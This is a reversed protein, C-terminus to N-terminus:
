SNVSEKICVHTVNMVFTIVYLLYMVNYCFHFCEYSFPIIVTHLTKNNSNNSYHMQKSINGKDYVLNAYANSDLEPNDRMIWEDPTIVNAKYDIENDRLVQGLNM